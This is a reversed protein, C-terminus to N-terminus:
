EGADERSARLLHRFKVMGDIRNPDTEAALRQRPRRLQRGRLRPRAAGREIVQAPDFANRSAPEREQGSASGAPLEGEGKPQQCGGSALERM